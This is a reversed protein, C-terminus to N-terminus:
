NGIKIVNINFHSIRLDTPKDSCFKLAITHANTGDFQVTGIFGMNRFEGTTVSTKADTNLNWFATQDNKFRTTSQLSSYNPNDDSVGDDSNGTVFLTPDEILGVRILAPVKSTLSVSVSIKYIGKNKANIRIRSPDSIPDVNFLNTNNTYSFMNVSNPQNILNSCRNALDLNIYDLPVPSISGYTPGYPVENTLYSNGSAEDGVIGYDFRSFAFPVFTDRNNIEIGTPGRPGTSNNATGTPGRPGTPGQDGVKNEGAPGILDFNDEANFGTPGIPGTPGTEQQATSARCERNLANQIDRNVKFM